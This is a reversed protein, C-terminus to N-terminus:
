GMRKKGSGDRKIMREGQGQGQGLGRGSVQNRGAGQGLGQGQGRGRGQSQRFPTSMGARESTDLYNSARNSPNCRGRGRGSMPGEGEPGRRNMGPM